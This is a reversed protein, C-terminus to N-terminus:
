KEKLWRCTDATMKYICLDGQKHADQLIAELEFGLREVFKRCRANGAYVPAVIRKVGLQRFPYDFCMWLMRRNLWNGVGAVHMTVSNGNCNEYMVGGIMQGDSGIRGIATGAGPHWVGDSQRAVWPGIISAEFFIVARWGGAHGHGDRGM